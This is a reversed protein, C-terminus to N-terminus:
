PAADPHPRLFVAKFGYEQRTRKVEDVAAEVCQAPLMTAGYM